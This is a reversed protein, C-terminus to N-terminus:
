DWHSLEQLVTPACKDGLWKAYLPRLVSYFPERSKKMFPFNMRSLAAPHLLMIQKRFKRSDVFATVDARWTPSGHTAILAEITPARKRELEAELRLLDKLEDDSLQDLVSGLSEFGWRADLSYGLKRFHVTMQVECNRITWERNSSLLLHRWFVAFDKSALLKKGFAVAYSQLHRQAMHQKRQSLVAGYLDTKAALVHDLFDEDDFTPFWVSDNMILLKNMQIGSELLHLIGDRYGGFDYGFNERELVGFSLGSLTNRDADSLPANSVIFVSFGKAAFYRCTEVSSALLGKPQYLLYLVVNPGAALTGNTYKSNRNKRLDHWKRRLPGSLAIFPFRMHDKARLVERKVKWMPLM